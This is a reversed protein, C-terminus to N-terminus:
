RNRRVVLAMAGILGLLAASPEPIAKGAGATWEEFGSDAQSSASAGIIDGGFRSYFYVTDSLKAGAFVSAPVLLAMDGKGSGQGNRAYDLLVSNNAGADMDYVLNLRSDNVLSDLTSNTIATASTTFIKVDDLSILNDKGNDPENIDLLFSVYDSGDVTIVGLTALTIEHNWQDVKKNDMINSASTNYGEEVGKKQITLFVGGSDRGFIGTGSPATGDVAYIAGNIIGSDVSTDALNVLTQANISSLGALCIGTCAVVTKLAYKM